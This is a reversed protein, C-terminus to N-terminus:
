AVASEFDPHKAAPIIGGEDQLVSSLQPDALVEAVDMVQGNVTVQRRMFRILQSYDVHSKDHTLGVSQIVSKGGPSKSSSASSYWGFNASNHRTGTAGPTHTGEPAGNANTGVPPAWFKRTLVWDKGENAVLLHDADGGAKSLASEIDGSQDVMDATKATIPRSLVPLKRDAQDWVADSVKTTLMVADLIDAAEQAARFSLSVTLRADGWALRLARRTVQVTATNGKSDALQVPVWELDYNGDVLAGLIQAERQAINGSLQFSTGPVTVDAGSAGIPDPLDPGGPQSGGGGAPTPYGAATWSKPGFVGDPTLGRAAQWDKAAALTAQDFVGTVPVGLIGQLVSVASGSSGLKVTPMPGKPTGPPPPEAGPPPQAGGTVTNWLLAAGVGLGAWSYWPWRPLRRAVPALARNLQDVVSAM